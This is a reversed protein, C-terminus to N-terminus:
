RFGELLAIRQRDVEAKLTEEQAQSLKVLNTLEGVLHKAEALESASTGNKLRHDYLAIM